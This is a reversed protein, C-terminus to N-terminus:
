IKNSFTSNIVAPHINTVVVSQTISYESITIKDKEKETIAMIVTKIKMLPCYLSGSLWVMCVRTAILRFNRMSNINASRHNITTLFVKIEETINNKTKYKVSVKNVADTM